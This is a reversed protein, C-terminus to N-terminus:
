LDVVLLGSEAGGELLSVLHAGAVQHAPHALYADASARDTFVMVFGDNYGRSFGEPSANTGFTASVMGELVGQLAALEDFAAQRTKEPVDQRFKVLVIHTVPPM